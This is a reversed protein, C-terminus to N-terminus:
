VSASTLIDEKSRGKYYDIEFPNGIVDSVLFDKALKVEKPKSFIGTAVNTGMLGQEEVPVKNLVTKIENESYGLKRLLNLIGEM